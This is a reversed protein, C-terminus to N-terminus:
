RRLKNFDEFIKEPTIELFGLMKDITTEAEFSFKTRLEYKAYAAATALRLIKTLDDPYSEYTQLFCIFDERLYLDSNTLGYLSVLADNAFIGLPIDFDLSGAFLEHACRGVIREFNEHNAPLVYYDVGNIKKRGIGFKKLVHNTKSALNTAM